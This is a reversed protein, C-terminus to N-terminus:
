WDRERWGGLGNLFWKIIIRGVVGLYELPDTEM